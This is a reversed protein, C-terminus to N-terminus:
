MPITSIEITRTTTISNMSITRRISEPIAVIGNPALKTDNPIAHFIMIFKMMNKMTAGYRVNNWHRQM